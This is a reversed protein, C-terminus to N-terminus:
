KIIQAIYVHVKNYRIVPAYRVGGAFGTLYFDIGKNKKMLRLKEELVSPNDLSYNLKWAKTIDTFLERLIMSSMVSSREFVM